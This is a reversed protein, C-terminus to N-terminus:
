APKVMIHIGNEQYAQYIEKIFHHKIANEDTANKIRLIVKFSVGYDGLENFHVAPTSDSVGSDNAKLVYNAVKLTVTEVLDLDSGYEVSIPITITCESYPQEYNMLTANAISKNPIIISNGTSTRITTNRWNMDKVTGEEGTSLKIYDGIHIQKSILTTIGSFLNTLTDQLALASALSGVGVATLLPSISIGYIQLVIITASSYVVIDIITTLISSSTLSSSENGIKKKLYDALVHAIFLAFAIVFLLIFLKNLGARVFDPVNLVERATLTGIMLGVLFPIGNSVRIIYEGDYNFHKALFRIFYRFAYRCAIPGLILFTYFLISNIIPGGGAHIETIIRNFLHSM